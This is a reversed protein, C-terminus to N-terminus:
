AMIRVHPVFNKCAKGYLCVNKDHLQCEGTEELGEKPGCECCYLCAGCENNAFDPSLGGEICKSKEKADSKKVIVLLDEVKATKTNGALNKLKVEGTKDNYDAVFFLNGTKDTVVDGVEIRCGNDKINIIDTPKVAVRQWLEKVENNKGRHLFRILVDVNGNERIVCDNTKVIYAIVNCPTFYPVNKFEDIKEPCFRM